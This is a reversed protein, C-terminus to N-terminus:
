NIIYISRDVSKIKATWNKIKPSANIVTYMFFDYIGTSMHLTRFWFHNKQICCLNERVRSKGKETKEIVCAIALGEPECMQDSDDLICVWYYRLESNAKVETNRSKLNINLWTM